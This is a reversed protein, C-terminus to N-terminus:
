KVMLSFTLPCKALKPYTNTITVTIYYVGRTGIRILISKMKISIFIELSLIM